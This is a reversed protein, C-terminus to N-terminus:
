KVSYTITRVIVQGSDDKMLQEHKVDHIVLRNGYEFSFNNTMMDLAELARGYGDELLEVFSKLRM